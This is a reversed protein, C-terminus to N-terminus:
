RLLILKKTATFKGAVLRYIYIGSSLDGANFNVTYYGPDKRENVLDAVKNGLVDYVNLMVLGAEKISYNIQTVPNFPNPYNQGLSFEVVTLSTTVGRKEPSAGSVYTIVTNSAESEHSNLDVAKVYYWVPHTEGPGGPYPYTETEDEYSTSTTSDLYQFGFESTVKKYIKYYFLDPEYNADWELYPHNEESKTVTLNEPALPIDDYQRYKYNNAFNTGIGQAYLVFLDNSASTVAADKWSVGGSSVDTWGSWTSATSYKKRHKFGEGAEFFFAHLTDGSTITIPIKHTNLKYSVTEDVIVETGWNSSTDLKNKYRLSPNGGTNKFYFSHIYDDESAVIRDMRSSDSSVIAAPNTWPNSYDYDRSYSSGLNTGVLNGSGTNITIHARPTENVLSTTITPFGGMSDLTAHNTINTNGTWVLGTFRNFYSEFHSVKQETVKESWVVHLKGFDSYAADVGNCNVNGNEFEIHQGFETWNSGGDTSNHVKITDNKRYVAYLINEDGVINPFDGYDDMYTSDVDTEGTTKLRYYTVHKNNGNYLVRLVHIGYHNAFLAIREYEVEGNLNTIDTTDINNWGVNQSFLNSYIALFFVVILTKM